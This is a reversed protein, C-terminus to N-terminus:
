NKIKLGLISLQDDTTPSPAQTLLCSAQLTKPFAIVDRLNDTGVLLMMIRDLGFAIGCHPPTGYELAELFFGFRSEAEAPTIGIAKFMMSQVEPNYIRVSGGGLEVGNLVLDYAQARCQGPNTQLLPIDEPVPSTFPHHMAQYRGEEANFELLPFETIWLFRLEDTLLNERRAIDLRMDGLTSAVLSEPGAVMCILDGPVASMAALLMAKKESSLLKGLPSGSFEGSEIVKLAILGNAGRHKAVDELEGIQKRSLKSGGPYVLGRIIGGSALVNDTVSFGCDSIVHSLEHIEIGFRLDPKDSGYKLMAEQYTMRQFPTVVSRNMISGFLEVILQEHIRFLTEVSTFSMEVDIQTFEPQRDARSDEDRFCKVVQFYRDVGSIMLLQKLMQPSQPLAYCMGKHLRSPVLFDRAGEPTSRLLQPTTVELFGQSSYFRHIIQTAEHRAKIIRFMEPRRLDLYRYKLRLEENAEAGGILHFPPVKSSNHVTLQDAVLEVRGTEMTPNIANDPRLSVTGKVTLVSERKLAAADRYLEPTRDPDFVVQLLGSRDYLDIFVLNGLDRRKRVWGAVIIQTGPELTGAEVCYHTRELLAEHEM